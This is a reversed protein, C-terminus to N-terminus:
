RIEVYQELRAVETEDVYKGIERRFQEIATYPRYEEFEHVMRDGMGPILLMEEATATNLDIPKWLRTYVSDRQEESLTPALVADVAIMNDYPRGQVLADALTADINPVTLLEDRSADNPDLMAGTAGADPVTGAPPTASTTAATTDATADPTTDDAGGGCGALLAFAVTAVTFRLTVRMNREQHCANGGMMAASLLLAYGVEDRWALL